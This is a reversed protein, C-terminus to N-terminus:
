VFYWAVLIVILGVVTSLVSHIRLRDLVESHDHDQDHDDPCDEKVETEVAEYIESGHGCRPLFDLAVHLFIGASFGFVLGDLSPIKPIGLYNTIIAMVGVASAPVLLIMVDGNMKNIRQAISYGGPGKHSVIALGLVLGLEPLGEYIIGIIAGAAVTHATINIVTHDLDFFSTHTRHSWTHTSFGTVLGLAIGFGGAAPDLDLSPPILFVTSSTIMAGSALGYGWVLNRAYHKTDQSDIFKGILAGGMMAFFAFWGVILVKHTVEVDFVITVATLSIFILTLISGWRRGKM